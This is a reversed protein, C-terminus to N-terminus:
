LFLKQWQQWNPLSTETMATGPDVQPLDDPLVVVVEGEKQLNLKERAAKELFEPNDIEALQETLAQNEKILEHRKIEREAVVQGKQWLTYISRGLSCIYFLSLISIILAMLKTSM